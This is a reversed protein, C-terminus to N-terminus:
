RGGRHDARRSRPLKFVIADLKSAAKGGTPSFTVRVKIRVNHHRLLRRAAATPELLLDVTGAHKTLARAALVLVPQRRRKTGARAAASALTSAQRATLVGPGSVDVLLLVGGGARHRVGRITFVNGPPKAESPPSTPSSSSSSTTGVTLPQESYQYQYQYQYSASAPNPIEAGGVAAFAGVLAVALVGALAQRGGAHKVSLAKSLLARM